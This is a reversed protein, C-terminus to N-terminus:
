QSSDLRYYRAVDTISLSVQFQNGIVVPASTVASWVAPPTLNGISQLNFGLANTPWTLAVNTGSLTITLLPPPPGVIEVIAGSAARPSNGLQGYDSYGMGWLSGDSKIFLSHESGAAVAVVGNSLIEEPSDSEGFLGDGLQGEDDNGMVWLSGDSKIFLSHYGAAAIATVGSPMIPVPVSFADNDSGQGLQGFEDDGIGWLSGDSKIFLAHAEGAAIATVNFSAITVSVNTYAYAGGLEGSSDSGMGLLRGGTTNVSGFISFNGGGAISTFGARTGTATFVAEPLSHNNTTADGLQGSQNKGMVWLKNASTYLSHNDGATIVGVGSSLIQQPTKALGLGLGLQGFENDGMGWLSGDSKKFLTHHGGGAILLVGNSVIEQPINAMAPTSGLGLQGYSNDGIVWLSGDAMTFLSHNGGCAIQTVAQTSVIQARADLGAILAPLGLAGRSVARLRTFLNKVRRNM